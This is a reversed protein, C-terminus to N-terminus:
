HLVLAPLDRISEIIHTHPAQELTARDHAGTLVGAVISAGARTGCWLDNATDGVVAVERVDDIGLHLIATLVMDPFPRGRMADSPSLALDFRGLWGLEDLLMERTSASFGTTACLRLGADRMSDLAAEAGDIPRVEGRGVAIDYSAEFARTARRALREEGVVRRFVEIKSLGMTARVVAIADETHEEDDLDTVSGLAAVFAREVVGDDSVLTGALDCCVLRIQPTESV